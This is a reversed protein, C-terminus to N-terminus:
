AESTQSAAPHPSTLGVAVDQETDPPTSFWMRMFATAAVSTAGAIAIADHWSEAPLILHALGRSAHYGAVAAPVALVLALAARLGPSRLRTFIAQGVIFTVSGALAGALIAAIPDSGGQYVALGVTMSVFFPLAHVALTFLVWCVYAFVVFSLVIGIIIM